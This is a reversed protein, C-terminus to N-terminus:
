EVLRYPRGEGDERRERELYTRRLDVEIPSAPPEGQAVKEFLGYTRPALNRTAEALPIAYAELEERWHEPSLILRAFGMLVTDRVAAPLVIPLQGDERFDIYYDTSTSPYGLLKGIARETQRVQDPTGKRVNKFRVALENALALNRSVCLEAGGASCQWMGLQAICDGARGEAYNIYAAPKIGAIVGVVEIADEPRIDRGEESLTDLIQLMQLHDPTLIPTEVTAQAILEDISAGSAGHVNEHNSATMERTQKKRDVVTCYLM